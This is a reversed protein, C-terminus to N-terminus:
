SEDDDSHKVVLVDCHAKSVVDETISKSLWGSIGKKKHMGLVLLDGEMKELIELLLKISSSTDITIIKVEANVQPDFRQIAQIEQSIDRAEGTKPDTLKNGSAVMPPHAVYCVLLKGGLEKALQYATKLAPISADSLDTPHVITSFM